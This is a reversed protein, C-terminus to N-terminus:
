YVLVTPFAKVSLLQPFGLICALSLGIRISVSASVTAAVLMDVVACVAELAPCTVIIAIMGSISV